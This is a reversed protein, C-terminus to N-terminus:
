GKLLEIAQKQLAQAQALLAIVQSRKDVAVVEALMKKYIEVISEGYGVGPVAWRGNLSEWTSCSGRSVLSFRPDVVTMTLPKDCAYAYLHQLHAIVGLEPTPFTAGTVGGTAGIGAYNNQEPKVDGTFRFFNTEKIAQAVAYGWRIGLIGGVNKYLPVIDPANPNRKRIYQNCQEVTVTDTGLISTGSPSPPAVPPAPTIKPPLARLRLIEADIAELLQTWNKGNKKLFDHPDTHDTEHNMEAIGRHSWVNPGTEWKYRVCMDAVLWVVRKWMETFPQIECMEVALFKGNATPGSHWARENEPICRIISTPDVFYHSSAQRHGSNFYDHENQATANPTATSHIVVGQPSLAQGSRNFKILQESIPYKM